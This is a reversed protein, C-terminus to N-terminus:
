CFIMGRLGGIGYSKNPIVIQTTFFIQLLIINQRTNSIPLVTVKLQPKIARYEHRHM